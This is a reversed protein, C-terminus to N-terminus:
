GPVGNETLRAAVRLAMVGLDCSRLPAAAAGIDRLSFARRDAIAQFKGRITHHCSPQEHVDDLLVVIFFVNSVATPRIISAPHPEAASVEDYLLEPVEVPPPASDDELPSGEPPPPAVGLADDPSPEPEEDDDDDDVVPLPPCAPTSV